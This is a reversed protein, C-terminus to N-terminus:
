WLLTGNMYFSIYGELYGQDGSRNTAGEYGFTFPVNPPIDRGPNPNGRERVKCRPVHAGKEADVVRDDGVM